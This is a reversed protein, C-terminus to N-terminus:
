ESMMKEIDDISSTNYPNTIGNNPQKQDFASGKNYSTNSKKSTMEVGVQGAIAKLLNTQATNNYKNTEMISYALASTMSTYYQELVTVLQDLELDNYFYKDFTFDAEKFNRIAYHYDSKFEYAASATTQRTEPDVKRITLVPTSVGYETGNTIIICGNGSNVGVQLTRDKIFAKIEEALMRAKIHTLYIAIGNDYDWHISGDASPKLAYLSLVIQNRLFSPVLKTQDVKSELNSMQYQSTVQVNDYKPKNNNEFAM